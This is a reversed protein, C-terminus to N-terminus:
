IEYDCFSLEVLQFDEPKIRPFNGYYNNIQFAFSPSVAIM